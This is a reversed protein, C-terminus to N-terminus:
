SPRGTKSANFVHSHMSMSTDFVVGLNRVSKSPKIVKDGVQLSVSPVKHKLHDPVAIFLETKEENLKLM